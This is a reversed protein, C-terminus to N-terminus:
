HHALYKNTLDPAAFILPKEEVLKGREDFISAVPISTIDRVRSRVKGDVSMEIEGSTTENLVVTQLLKSSSDKVEITSRKLGTGPLIEHHVQYIKEQDRFEYKGESVTGNWFDMTNFIVTDILLTVAFVVATLIYLIIRLILSKSNVWRAYERTLKYGGSACGTNFAMITCAFFSGIYFLTKSWFRAM